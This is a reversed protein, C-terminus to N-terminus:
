DSEVTSGYIPKRLWSAGVFLVIAIFTLFWIWVNMELLIFYAVILGTSSGIVYTPSIGYANKYFRVLLVASVIGAMIYIFFTSDGASSRGEFMPDPLFIGVGGFWLAGALVGFVYALGDLGVSRRITATLDSEDRSRSLERVDYQPKEQKSGGRSEVIEEIAM